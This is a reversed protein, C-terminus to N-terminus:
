IGTQARLDNCYALFEAESKIYKDSYPIITGVACSQEPAMNRIAPPVTIGNTCRGNIFKSCREECLIWNKPDTRKTHFEAEALNTTTSRRDAGVFPIVACSKMRSVIRDGYRTKLDSSKLNTTYHTRLPSSERIGVISAFVEPRCGYEVKEHEAGVDDILVERTNMSKIDTIISNMSDNDHMKLSYILIPTRAVGSKNLIKFFMTKGTGVTGTLILSKGELYTKLAKISKETHEYGCRRMKEAANKLESNSISIVPATIETIMANVEEALSMEFNMPTNM